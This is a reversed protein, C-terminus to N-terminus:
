GRVRRLIFLALAVIVLIVLITWLMILSRGTPPSAATSWRGCARWGRFL